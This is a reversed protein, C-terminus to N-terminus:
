HLSKLEEMYKRKLVTYVKEGILGKNYNDELRKLTAKIARSRADRPKKLALDREKVEEVDKEELKTPELKLEDTIERTGIKGEKNMSIEQFEKWEVPGETKEMSMAEAEKGKTIIPLRIRATGEKKAIWPLGSIWARFKEILGLKYEIGIISAALRKFEKAAPSNPSSLVVPSGIAISERVRRDEPVIGIVPVDFVLEVEMVSLEYKEGRVMNLIIGRIPVGAKKAVVIAKLAQTIAPIDLSTVILVEDCIRLNSDIDKGLGPPSDVLVVEYENLEKLFAGLEQVAIERASELPAPLIEVGSPLATLADRIAVKKELVEKLTKDVTYVGLHFPLDPNNPDGDILAIKRKFLSALATGVNAVTTTKGVGGKGSIIGIVRM